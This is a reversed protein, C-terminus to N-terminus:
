TAVTGAASHTPAQASALRARRPRIALGTTIVALEVSLLDRTAILLVDVATVAAIVLASFVFPRRHIFDRAVTPNM